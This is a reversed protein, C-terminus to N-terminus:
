AKAAALAYRQGRKEWAAVVSRECLGCSDDWAGLVGVAGSGLTARGGGTVRHGDTSEGPVSELPQRQQQEM